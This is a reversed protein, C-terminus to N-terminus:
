WIGSVLHVRVEHFSWIRFRWAPLLLHAVMLHFWSFGGFRVDSMCDSVRGRLTRYVGWSALSDHLSIGFLHASLKLFYPSRLEWFAVVVVYPTSM